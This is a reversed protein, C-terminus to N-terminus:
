ARDSLLKFTNTHFIGRMVQKKRMWVAKIRQRSLLSQRWDAKLAGQLPPFANLVWFIGDGIPQMKSLVALSCEVLNFCKKKQGALLRRQIRPFQFHFPKTKNVTVHVSFSNKTAKQRLITLIDFPNYGSFILEMKKKLVCWAVKAFNVLFPM